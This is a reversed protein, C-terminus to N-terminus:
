HLNRWHKKNNNNDREAEFGEMKGFIKKKEQGCKWSQVRTILNLIVDRFLCLSELRTCHLGHGMPAWLVMVTALGEHIPPSRSKEKVPAVRLLLLSSLATYAGLTWPQYQLTEPYSALTEKIPIRQRGAHSESFSAPLHYNWWRGPMRKLFSAGWPYVLCQHWIEKYQGNDCSYAKNLFVISWPFFDAFMNQLPSITFIKPKLSCRTEAAFVGSQPLISAGDVTPLCILNAADWHLKNVFLAQLSSTTWPDTIQGERADLLFYVWLPLFTDGVM